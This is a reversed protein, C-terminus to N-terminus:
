KGARKTSQSDAAIHETAAQISEFVPTKYRIAGEQIVERIDKVRKWSLDKRKAVYERHQDEPLLVVADAPYDWFLAGLVRLGYAKVEASMEDCRRYQKEFEDMDKVKDSWKVGLARFLLDQDIWHKMKAPQRKVFYTKGSAPPALIIAGRAHRAYRKAYSACVADRSAKPSPSVTKTDKKRKRGTVKSQTGVTDCAEQKRKKTKSSAVSQKKTKSSAVSQKKTRTKVMNEHAKATSSVRYHNHYTCRRKNKAHRATTVRTIEAGRGHPVRRDHRRPIYEM